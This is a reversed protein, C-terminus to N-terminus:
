LDDAADSTYLLCSNARGHRIWVPGPDRVVERGRELPENVSLEEDHALGKGDRLRPTCQEALPGPGGGRAVHLRQADVVDERGLADAGGPQVPAISSVVMSRSRPM